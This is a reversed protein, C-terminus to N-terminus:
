HHRLKLRSYSVVLIAITFTIVVFIYFLTIDLAPSVELYNLAYSSAMENYKDALVVLFKHGDILAIYNGVCFTLYGIVIAIPERITRTAKENGITFGAVALSIIGFYNWLKDVQSYQVQFMQFVDVINVSNDM